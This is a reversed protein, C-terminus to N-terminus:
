QSGGPARPSGLATRDVVRVSAGRRLRRLSEDAIDALDAGDRRYGSITINAVFSDTGLSSAPHKAVFLMGPAGAEAPDAPLWGGPLRFEIPVPLRPTTSMMSM